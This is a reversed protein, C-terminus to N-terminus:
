HRRKTRRSKRQKKSKKGGYKKQQKKSLKQKKSKKGGVIRRKKGPNEHIEEEEEEDEIDIGEIDIGLVINLQVYKKTKDTGPNTAIELATELLRLKNTLSRLEDINETNEIDLKEKKLLDIIKPTIITGSLESEQLIETLRISESFSQTIEAHLSNLQQKESLNNIDNKQELKNLKIGINDMKQKFNFKLGERFEKLRNMYDGFKSKINNVINSDRIRKGLSTAINNLYGRLYNPKGTTEVYEIALDTWSKLTEESEGSTSVLSGEKANMNAIIDNLFAQVNVPNDFSFGEDLPQSDGLSSVTSQSDNQSM